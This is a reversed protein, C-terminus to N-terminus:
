DRLESAAAYLEAVNAFREEPDEALCRTVIQDLSDPVEPLLRRLTPPAGNAAAEPSAPHLGSLAHFLMGGLAYIDTRADAPRGALFEPPPYRYDKGAAPTRLAGLGFGALRLKGGRAVLVDAMKLDKHLLNRQHAYGLAICLTSLLDLAQKISLRKNGSLLSDLSKGDVYETVVVKHARMETLGLVRVLHPHDITKAIKAEALFREVVARDQLLERRLFKIIVPQDNRIDIAKFTGGLFGRGLEEILKFPPSPAAKAPPQPEPSAAFEAAVPPEDADGPAPQSTEVATARAAQASGARTPPPSAPPSPATGLSSSALPPKASLKAIREEVDEYGYREAMVKRFTELAEDRKGLKEYVLGLCYYHELTQNGIPRDRLVRQLKEEALSVMNKNLFLRSLLLTAHEYNEDSPDLRQFLRIAREQDGSKNALRGAEFYHEAQEFLESAEADRGVDAYLKAAMLADGGKAFMDAAEEKKEARLYVNAAQLLSESQEYCRAASALDGVSEFLEAARLNDGGKLFEQAAQAVDGKRFAVEGRIVAARERQGAKEFMEAAKELEEDKLLMEGAEDYRGTRAALEAAPRSLRARRYISAAKDFAGAKEYLQGAMRAVKQDRDSPSSILGSGGVSSTAAWHNEYNEAAKLANGLKEYAQAAQPYYSVAEYLEAARNFRGADFYLKAADIKHGHEEYIEAAKEGHGSAVLTNAARKWDEARRYMEAAHEWYELKEYLTGAAIYEGAEIYTEIAQEYWEAEEYLQAAGMLNGSKKLGAIERNFRIGRLREGGFRDVTRDWAGSEQLKQKLPPMLYTHFLYLAGLVLAVPLFIDALPAPLFSKLFDM